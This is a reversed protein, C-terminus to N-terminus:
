YLAWKAIDLYKTAILEESHQSATPKHLHKSFSSRYNTECINLIIMTLRGNYIFKSIKTSGTELPLM